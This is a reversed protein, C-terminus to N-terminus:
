LEALAAELEGRAHQDGRAEAATIGRRFTEAALASEGLALLVGGAQLYAPVYDPFGALLEDFAARAEALQGRVKLEMALGYRPFPDNPSRAIFQRFTAIRDV